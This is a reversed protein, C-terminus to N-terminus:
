HFPRLDKFNDIVFTDKRKKYMKKFWSQKYVTFPYYMDAIRHVHRSCLMSMAELLLPVEYQQYNTAHDNLNLIKQGSEQMNNWDRM